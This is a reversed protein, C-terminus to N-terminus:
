KWVMIPMNNDFQGWMVPHQQNRSIETVKASVYDFLEKATIVQDRNKDASGRLGQQLYATFFANKMNLQEISTENSRSSLFFVMDKNKLSSYHSKRRMTGSYCANIFAIRRGAKTSNFVKAIEYYSLNGDYACVAGKEGHGSYFMVVADHQGSKGFLQKMTNIINSKTAQQDTLIITESDGNKEYLWKITKADRACLYTHNYREPYNQIGICLVYNRAVISDAFALLLVIFLLRHNLHM